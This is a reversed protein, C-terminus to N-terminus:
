LQWSSSFFDAFPLAHIKALVVCADRMLKELSGQASSMDRRPILTLADTLYVWTERRVCLM